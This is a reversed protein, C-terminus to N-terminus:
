VKPTEYVMEHHMAAFSSGLDEVANFVRNALWRWCGDEIAWRRLDANAQHFADDHSLWGENMCQFLVDHGCSGRMLSDLDFFGTVGNWAYGKRILLLGDTFLEFFQHSVRKGYVGTQLTFDEKVQYKYNGKTYKM